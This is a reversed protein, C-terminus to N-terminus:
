YWYNYIFTLEAQWLQVMDVSNLKETISKRRLLLLFNLYTCCHITSILLAFNSIDTIQIASIV